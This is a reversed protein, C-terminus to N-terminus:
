RQKVEIDNEVSKVGSVTSAVQAARRKEAESDAFGSLQVTGKYTKVSVQAASVAPDGALAAKVKATITTDDLYQGTSEQYRREACGALLVLTGLAALFHRRKM